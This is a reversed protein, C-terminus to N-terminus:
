SGAGRRRRSLLRRGDPADSWSQPAYFDAGHDVWRVREPPDDRLSAKVADVDIGHRHLESAQREPERRQRGIPRQGEEVMVQPCAVAQHARRHFVHLPLMRRAARASRESSMSRFRKVITM